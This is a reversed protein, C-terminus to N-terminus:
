FVLIETYFLLIRRLVVGGERKAKRRGEEEGGAREKKGDAGSEGPEKLVNKKVFKTLTHKM